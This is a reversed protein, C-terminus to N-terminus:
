LSLPRIKRLKWHKLGKKLVKHVAQYKFISPKKDIILQDIISKIEMATTKTLSNQLNLYMFM